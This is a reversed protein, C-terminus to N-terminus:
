EVIKWEGTGKDLYILFEKQMKHQVWRIKHKWEPQRTGTLKYHTCKESNDCYEPCNRKIIRYIQQT